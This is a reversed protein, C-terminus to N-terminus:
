ALAPTGIIKRDYGTISMASNGTMKKSVPMKLFTTVIGYLFASTDFPTALAMEVMAPKGNAHPNKNAISSIEVPPLQPGPKLVNGFLMIVTM